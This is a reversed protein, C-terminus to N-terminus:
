CVENVNVNVNLIVLKSIQVRLIDIVLSLQSAKYNVKEMFTYARNM